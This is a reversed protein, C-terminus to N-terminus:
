TKYFILNKILNNRIKNCFYTKHKFYIYKLINIKIEFNNKTYKNFSLNRTTFINELFREENFINELFREEKM